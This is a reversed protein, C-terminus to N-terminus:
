PGPHHHPFFVTHQCVLCPQGLCTGLPIQPEGTARPHQGRSGWSRCASAAIVPARFGAEWRVSDASFLLVGGRWVLVALLASMLPLLWLRCAPGPAPSSLGHPAPASVVGVVQSSEDRM